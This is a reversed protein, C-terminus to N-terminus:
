DREAADPRLRRDPPYPVHEVIKGNAVREQISRWWAPDFVHACREMVVPKLRAPLGLFRSFEEPFVDGTGVSFWPEARTEDEDFRAEPLPRFTVRELEVLEDYDYLAVRRQRTVGFNKLLLDGPFINEAALDHIARGWEVLAAEADAQDRQRVYLNLPVIQREVYAREIIVRDGESRVSAACESLLEELLAPEFRARPFALEEFEQADLLRGARDRTYVWQYRERVEEPTVSKQPPFRDRIVKMVVDMGPMTFVVMVLGPTGPAFGFVDRTEDIHDVVARYLETKGQKPEGIAIYLEAIRKKPILSRLFRMVDYPRQADVHFYSRTYSFLLSVDDEDVLVADVFIGEPGNRLALVLPTVVGAPLVLRGVLYAGKGRYFVPEIVELAIPAGRDLARLRAEVRASALWADGTRDVWPVLFPTDDLAQELLSAVSGLGTYRRYTRESAELPPADFDSAVFEVLPDVGVTDFIRRTVGNFFTEALDWDHRQAILASYVAKASVWVLRDRAREGLLVRIQAEADSVASRVMGLRQVADRRRSPWDRREFAGRARRTVDRFRLRHSAFADLIASAVPAALRSPSPPRTTM